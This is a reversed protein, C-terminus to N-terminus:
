HIPSPRIKLAIPSFTRLWVTTTWESNCAPGFKWVQGM